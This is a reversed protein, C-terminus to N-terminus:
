KNDERIKSKELSSNLMGQSENLSANNEITFAKKLKLKMRETKFDKISPISNKSSNQENNNQDNIIVNKNNSCNLNNNKVTIDFMLCPVDKMNFSNLKSFTGNKKVSNM